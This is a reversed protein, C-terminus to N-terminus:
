KKKSQTILVKDLAEFLCKIAIMGEIEHEKGELKTKLLLTQTEKGQVEDTLESIKDNLHQILGEHKCKPIQILIKLSNLIMVNSQIDLESELQKVKQILEAIEKSHDANLKQILETIEKSHDANLKNKLGKEHEVAM